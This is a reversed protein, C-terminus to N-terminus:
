LSRKKPAPGSSPSDDPGDAVPSDSPDDPDEHHKPSSSGSKLAALQERAAQERAQAARGGSRAHQRAAAAKALAEDVAALPDNSRTPTPAPPPDPVADLDVGRARRAAELAAMAKAMPDSPTSQVPGLSEPALNTQQPEPIEPESVSQEARMAALREELTPGSRTPRPEADADSDPEDLTAELEDLVQNREGTHGREEQASELSAEASSVIGEFFAGVSKRAATTAASVAAKGAAKGAEAAAKQRADEAAEEAKDKADDFWGM